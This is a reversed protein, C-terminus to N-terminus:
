SVLRYISETPSVVSIGAGEIVVNVKCTEVATGWFRVYRDKVMIASVLDPSYDKLWDAHQRVDINSPHTAGPGTGPHSHIWIGFYTGTEAMAILAQGLRDPDAKVGSSNAEGTVDFLAAIKIKSDIRCAAGVIMREAPFLSLRLQYMMAATLVMQPVSPLAYEKPPELSISKSLDSESAFGNLDLATVLGFEQKLNQKAVFLQNVTRMTVEGADISTSIVGKRILDETRLIEAEILSLASEASVLDKSFNARRVAGDINTLNDIAIHLERVPHLDASRSTLIELSRDSERRLTQGLRQLIPKADPSPPGAVFSRVGPLKKVRELM